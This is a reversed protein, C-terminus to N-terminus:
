NSMLRAKKVKLLCRYAEYDAEGMRIYRIFGVVYWNLENLSELPEAITYLDHHIM